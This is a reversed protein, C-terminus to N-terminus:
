WMLIAVVWTLCRIGSAPRGVTGSIDTKLVSMVAFGRFDKSGVAKVFM